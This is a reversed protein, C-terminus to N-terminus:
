PVPAPRRGALTAIVAALEDPDVPKPVHMQFGAQLARMREGASSYATLAAAPTDGGEGAPLARVRAILGYGDGGPMQIDTILVDPRLRRVLGLGEEALEAVHVVAGAHELTVRYFERSDREDEVVVVTLGELSWRPAAAGRASGEAEAGRALPLRVRFTAGKGEGESHADITGGHLEVLQRAIALGLGLGKEGKLRDQAGQRFRDFVHPLLDPAIGRGTDSVALVALGDEEGVRIAIRGGNPTFKVANALLNLAVQQLRDPDGTVMTRIGRTEARLDIEKAQAAVHVVERAAAAISNLDVPREELHVKGAVIRSMDMLDEILKALGRSSREITEAARERLPAEDTTRLIRVWGLIANLPGRLEHSVTALFADKAQAAALLDDAKAKLDQAHVELAEELRKRDTDDRMVKVFGLLGGAEDRVPEVSGSAWLLSGDKRLHWRKDEAVGEEAAAKLEIAPLGRERDEPVFVIAVDRGVAEEPTYGLLREAGANWSAIRGSADILFIAHDRLGDVVRQLTKGLATGAEPGTEGLRRRFFAFM